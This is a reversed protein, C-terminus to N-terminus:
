GSRQQEFSAVPQGKADYLTLVGASLGVRVVNRSPRWTPAVGAPCSHGTRTIPGFRARGDVAIRYTGSLYFCPGGGTLTGDSSLTITAAPEPPPGWSGPIGEGVLTWTGIAAAPLRGTVSWREVVSSPRVLQVVPRDGAFLTVVENASVALRTFSEYAREFADSQIRTVPFPCPWPQMPISHDMLVGTPSLRGGGLPPCPYRATVSYETPGSQSKRSVTLSPGDTPGDFDAIWV